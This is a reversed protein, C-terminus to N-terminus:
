DKFVVWSLTKEDWKYGHGDDPYPTPADWHYTTENLTWSKFPQPPIFADNDADYTGGIMAPNKRKGDRNDLIQTNTFSQKFFINSDQINYLNTLFDIGAQETTAISDAVVVVNDVKSNNQDNLIIKAFYAM